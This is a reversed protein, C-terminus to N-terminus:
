FYFNYTVSPIFGFLYSLEAYTKKPNDEDTKYTIYWANARNYVNYVSVNFDYKGRNKSEKKPRINLSLDMRHYDPLRFANRDSYIPIILGEVEAKGVPVTYPTGTYYVWTAALDLRDNIEYNLVVSLNHPRDYPALYSRGDNITNIKRTARSLTYSIWGNLAGKTRKILFEAGYAKGTGTRLEGYMKENVMLSAHDKFDIVNHLDKYYLETSFEWSDDFLDRFYSLTFMNAMQPKINPNSSFWRDQPLGAASNQALQVYQTTRSYNFKISNNDNISFDVGIRPEFSWDTHYIEGKGYQISDAVAYDKDYYFVNDDGINSFSSTRLGYQLSLRPTLKQRNGIYLANEIGYMRPLFESYSVDLPNGNADTILGGGVSQTFDGPEFMHLTGQYGFSLNHNENTKYDFDYKIGANEMGIASSIGLEGSKIDMNCIYKIYNLSLKAHLKDNFDHEWELSTLRNGYSARMGMTGMDMVDNSGYSSFTLRNNNNMKYTLKGSLDWFYMRTSKLEPESALPLFLDFYSRRGSVLFSLKDKIIPGDVSIRTSLMGIGGKISYDTMSGDKLEIDLISSLRSGYEVPIDGKYITVKEIADNNFLPFFGMAHSTSFIPAHELMVLNQDPAGGRVSFGSSGESTSTVGPLLQMAKIIDVEGLFAPIRRIMKMNMVDGGSLTRNIQNVKSKGYVTVSKLSFPDSELNCVLPSTQPSSITITRKKYGLYTITLEHQKTPLSLEFMGKDDTHVAINEAIVSVIAYSLPESTSSDQVCGKIINQSQVTHSTVFLLLLVAIRELM